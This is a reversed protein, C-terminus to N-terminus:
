MKCALRGVPASGRDDHHFTRTQEHYRARGSGDQPVRVCVKVDAKSIDLGAVRDVVVDM